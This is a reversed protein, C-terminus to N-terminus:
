LGGFVELFTDNLLGQQVKDVKELERVQSRSLNLEDVHDLLYDRWEQSDINKQNLLHGIALPSDDKDMSKALTKFLDEKRQPAYKSVAPPNKESYNNIEKKFHDKPRNALYYGFDNTTGVRAVITDALNETEGRAKFKKALSNIASIVQKPNSTVLTYDGFSDISSYDRQINELEDRADKAAQLETKQGNRVSEIAKNEVNQYTNQPIDINSAKKLADIENRIANQVGGQTQRQSQLAQNVAIDQANEDRAGKLALDATPYLQPNEQQLQSARSLLQNYSLPLVPKIAAQTGTTEVLGEKSAAQNSDKPKFYPELGTPKRTTENEDVKKLGQSIAQQRLLNGFSEQMQPTSGPLSFLAGLQSTLPLNRGEETGTLQQLGSALRGRQIEEPLQEALGKGIGSGIRGFINGQKIQQAV